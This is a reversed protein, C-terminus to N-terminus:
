NGQIYLRESFDLTENRGPYYFFHFQPVLLSFSENPSSIFPQYEGNVDTLLTLKM